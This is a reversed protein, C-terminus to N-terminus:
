RLAAVQRVSHSVTEAVLPSDIPWTAQGEPLALELMPTPLARVFGVGLGLYVALLVALGIGLGLWVSRGFTPLAGLAGSPGLPIRQEV